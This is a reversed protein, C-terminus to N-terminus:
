YEGTKTLLRLPMINFKATNWATVPTNKNPGVLLRKVLGKGKKIKGSPLSNVTKKMSSKLEKRAAKQADSQGLQKKVTQSGAAKKIKAKASARAAKQTDSQGVQAKAAQKLRRSAGKRARRVGWRMGKTGYHELYLEYEQRNNFDRSGRLM